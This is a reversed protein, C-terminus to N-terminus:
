SREYAVAIYDGIPDIKDERWANWATYIKEDAKKVTAGYTRVNFYLIYVNM